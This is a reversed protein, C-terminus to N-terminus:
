CSEWAESAFEHLSKIRYERTSHLVEGPELEALQEMSFETRGIIEGNDDPWASATYIKEAEFDGDSVDVEWLPGPDTLVVAGSRIISEDVSLFLRETHWADSGDETPAESEVAIVAPPGTCWVMVLVPNGDRDVSMGVEGVKAASCSALLIAALSATLAVLLARM